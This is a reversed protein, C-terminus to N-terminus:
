EAGGDKRAAYRQRQQEREAARCPECIPVKRYWHQKAGKATGHDIPPLSEPNKAGGRYRDRQEKARAERCEACPEEALSLHRRYGPLTGCVAPARSGRGPRLGLATILDDLQDDTLTM